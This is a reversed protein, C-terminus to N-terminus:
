LGLLRNVYGGVDVGLFAQAYWLAGLALAGILVFGWIAYKNWVPVIFKTYWDM